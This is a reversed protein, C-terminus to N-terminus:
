LCADRWMDAVLVVPLHNTWKELSGTNGHHGYVHGILADPKEM